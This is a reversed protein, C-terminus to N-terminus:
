TQPAIKKTVISLRKTMENIRGSSSDIKRTKCSCICEEFQPCVIYAAKKSKLNNIGLPNINKIIRRKLRSDEIDEYLYLPTKVTSAFKQISRVSKRETERRTKIEESSGNLQPDRFPIGADSLAIMREDKYLLSKQIIKLDKAAITGGSKRGFPPGEGVHLGTQVMASRVPAASTYTLIIGDEKILNKLKLFFELTYLEPCKAPSFPDL